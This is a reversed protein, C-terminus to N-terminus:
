VHSDGTKQLPQESAEQMKLCQAMNESHRTIANTMYFQTIPLEFPVADLASSTPAKEPKWPAKQIHNMTQFIPNLKGLYTQLETLHRYALPIELKQALQWLVFWDEQADGVCALARTTCQPRGETNVYTTSKETYAATPLIIDAAHAGRDGHHGLYIVYADGFEQPDIEDVGLLLVVRIEGSQCRSLIEPLNQATTASTKPIFGLDLAGVRGASTHLVNFGNFDPTVMHYKEALAQAMRLLNPSDQRTLAGQGLILMPRQAAALATCAPHNGDLIDKLPQATNGYHTYPYTLDVSPGMLHVTLGGQLYRKRIRANVLPAEHRPNTGIMLIYDASEIGAITSNFLYNARNSVDYYAGDQRCELQQVQLHQAIDKAVALTECDVLDGALFAIESPPHQTLAQAAATLADEWDCPAFKGDIRQYPRDLRQRQLGDYAFRTKDSIWVENIAANERPLIRVIECDKVDIRIHSGVADMVDISHNKKLDWPRARFAYPRNTLAGVPCVDILNGSLESTIAQQLYTTIEKEEGRNVAGMAPVGAIENAFRVCRMCHICRTMFTKILPGMPKDSVARKDFDYRSESPGYFLTLDQLDCEGGQDCIPCDLPHNILLLELVGKRAKKVMPSNTRVVMGETAPMACSAVPKASNEVEVLCMRCNGAISLHPHYCFVPIEVGAQECAQLLTTGDQVDIEHDNITLKPM